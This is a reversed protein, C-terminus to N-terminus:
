IASAFLLLDRAGYVGHEHILQVFLLLFKKMHLAKHRRGM